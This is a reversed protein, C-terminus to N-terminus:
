SESQVYRYVQMGLIAGIIPGLVYTISFSSIGLAVAPNLIGNSGMLAAISIGVLLSGGVIMGSFSGPIKGYVVAAVGFAFFFAGCMEALGVMLSNEVALEPVAVFMPLVLLAVLAGACQVVIYICADRTSIKGISWVGLTVAPNIHAGSVYGITYVFLGLTLAALIPTAIQSFVLV